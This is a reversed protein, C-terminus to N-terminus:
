YPSPVINNNKSSDCELTIVMMIVFKIEQACHLNKELIIATLLRVYFKIKKRGVVVRGEPLWMVTTETKSPKKKTQKCM